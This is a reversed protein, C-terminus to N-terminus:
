GARFPKRFQFTKRTIHPPLRGTCYLPPLLTAGAAGPGMAPQKSQHSDLGGGDIDRMSWNPFRVPVRIVMVVWESCGVAIVAVVFVVVLVVVATSVVVVM